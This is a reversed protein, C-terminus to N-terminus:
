LNYKAFIKSKKTSNRAHVAVIKAAPTLLCRKEEVKSGDPQYTRKEELSLQGIRGQNALCLQSFEEM